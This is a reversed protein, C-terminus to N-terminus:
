AQSAPHDAFGDESGSGPVVDGGNQFSPRLLHPTPLEEEAM